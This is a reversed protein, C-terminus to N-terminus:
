KPIKWWLRLRTLPIQKLWKRARLNFKAANKDQNTNKKRRYKTTKKKPKRIKPTAKIKHQSMSMQRIRMQTKKKIRIGL